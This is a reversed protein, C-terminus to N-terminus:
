LMIHGSDDQSYLCESAVFEHSVECETGGAAPERESGAATVVVRRYKSSHQGRIYRSVLKGMCFPCNCPVQSMKSFSFLVELEQEFRASCRVHVLLVTLQGILLNRMRVTLQAIAIVDGIQCM